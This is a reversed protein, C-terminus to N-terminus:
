YIIEKFFHKSTQLLHLIDIIDPLLNKMLRINKEDVWFNKNEDTQKILEGKTAIVKFYHLVVDIFPYYKEKRIIHIIGLYVFTGKLGTEKLLCREATKYMPEGFRVKETHFGIKGKGFDRLREEM